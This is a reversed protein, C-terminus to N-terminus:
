IRFATYVSPTKFGSLFNLHSRCICYCFWLPPFLPSGAFHITGVINSVIAFLFYSDNKTYTFGHCHATPATCGGSCLLGTSHCNSKSKTDITLPDVGKVISLIIRYEFEDLAQWSMNGELESYKWGFKSVIYNPIDPAGEPLKLKEEKETFNNTGDM